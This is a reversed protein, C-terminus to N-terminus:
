DHANEQLHTSTLAAEPWEVVHACFPVLRAGLQEMTVVSLEQGRLAAPVDFTLHLYHVGRATLDAIKHIPLTGIVVDGAVLTDNDPLHRLHDAGSLGTNLTLWAVAGPHRSIMVVRAARGAPAGMATHHQRQGAGSSSRRFFSRLSFIAM